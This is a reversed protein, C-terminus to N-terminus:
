RWKDGKVGFSIIAVFKFQYAGFKSESDIDVFEQRENEGAVSLTEILDFSRAIANM